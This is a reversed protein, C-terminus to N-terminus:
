AFFMNSTGFLSIFWDMWRLLSSLFGWCCNSLWTGWAFLSHLRNCSSCRALVWSSHLVMGRLWCAAFLVVMPLCRLIRSRPQGQFLISTRCLTAPFGASLKTLTAPCGASLETMVMLSPGFGNSSSCNSNEANKLGQRNTFFIESYLSTETLQLFVELCGVPHTFLVGVWVAHVSHYLIIVLPELSWLQFAWSQVDKHALFLQWWRTMDWEKGCRVSVVLVLERELVEGM